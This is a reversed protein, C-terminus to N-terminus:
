PLSPVSLLLIPSTSRLEVLISQPGIRLRGVVFSDSLVRKSCILTVFDLETNYRKAVEVRMDAVTSKEGFSLTFEDPPERCTFSLEIM